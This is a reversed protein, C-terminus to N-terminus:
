DWMIESMASPLRSIYGTQKMFQTFRMLGKVELSYELDKNKLYELVEGEDTEYAEALMAATREPNNQM